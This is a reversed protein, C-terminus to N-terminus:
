ELEYNLKGNVIRSPATYPHEEAKNVSMIHM